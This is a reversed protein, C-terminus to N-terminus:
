HPKATFTESGGGHGQTLRWAGEFGLQEQGGGGWKRGKAEMKKFKGSVFNGLKMHHRKEQAQHRALPSGPCVPARPPQPVRDRPSLCPPPIPVGQLHGELQFLLRGKLPTELSPHFPSIKPNRKQGWDQTNHFYQLFVARPEASIIALGRKAVLLSPMPSQHCWFM